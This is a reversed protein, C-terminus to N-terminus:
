IHTHTHTHRQMCIHTHVCRRHAGTEEQTRATITPETLLKLVDVPNASPGVTAGLSPSRMRAAALGAVGGNVAAGPSRVLGVSETGREDSLRAQTLRLTTLIPYSPGTCVVATPPPHLHARVRVPCACLFVCVPKLVRPGSRPPCRAVYGNSELVM